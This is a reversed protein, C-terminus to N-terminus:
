GLGHVIGSNCDTDNGDKYGGNTDEEVVTRLVCGLNHNSNAQDYHQYYNQQGYALICVTPFHM